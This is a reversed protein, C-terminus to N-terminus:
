RHPLSSRRTASSCHGGRLSPQLVRRPRSVTCPARASVSQSIGGSRARLVPGQWAGVVCSVHVTLMSRSWWAAHVDRKVRYSIALQRLRGAALAGSAQTPRDGKALSPRDGKALAGKRLLRLARALFDSMKDRLAATAVILLDRCIWRGSTLTNRSTSLRTLVASRSFCMSSLAVTSM